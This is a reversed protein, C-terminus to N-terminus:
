CDILITIGWRLLSLFMLLTCRSLLNSSLFIFLLGFFALFVTEQDSYLRKLGHLTSSMKWLINLFFKLFSCVLIYFLNYCLCLILLISECLLGTTLTRLILLIPLFFRSDFHEILDHVLFLFFYM